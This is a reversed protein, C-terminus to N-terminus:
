DAFSFKDNQYLEIRLHSKYCLDPMGVNAWDCPGDTQIYEFVLPLHFHSLMGLRRGDVATLLYITLSM